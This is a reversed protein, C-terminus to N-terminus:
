RCSGPLRGHQQTLEQAHLHDGGVAVLESSHVVRHEDLVPRNAGVPASTETEMRQRHAPTGEARLEPVHLPGDLSWPQQTPEEMPRWVENGPGRDHVAVLLADDDVRGEYGLLM